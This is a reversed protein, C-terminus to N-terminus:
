EETVNIPPSVADLDAKNFVHPIAQQYKGIMQSIKYDETILLPIPMILSLWISRNDRSLAIKYIYQFDSDKWFELTIRKYEECNIKAQVANENPCLNGDVIKGSDYAFGINMPADGIFHTSNFLQIANCIMSIIMYIIIARFGILLRKKVVPTM